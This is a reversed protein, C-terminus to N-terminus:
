DAFDWTRATTRGGLLIARKWRRTIMASFVVPGRAVNKTTPRLVVGSQSKNEEITKQEESLAIV